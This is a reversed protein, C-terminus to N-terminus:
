GKPLGWVSSCLKLILVSLITMFCCKCFARFILLVIALSKLSDTCFAVSYTWFLSSLCTNPKSKWSFVSKGGDQQIHYIRYFLATVLKFVPLLRIHIHSSVLALIPTFSTSDHRSIEIVLYKKSFTLSINENESQHMPCFWLIVMICWKKMWTWKCLNWFYSM